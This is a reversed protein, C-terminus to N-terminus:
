LTSSWFQFTPSNSVTFPHLFEVHSGASRGKKIFTAVTASQIRKPLKQDILHWIAVISHLKDRPWERRRASKQQAEHGFMAPHPTLRRSDQFRGTLEASAQGVESGLQLM